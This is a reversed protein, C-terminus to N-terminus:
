VLLCLQRKGTNKDIGYMEGALPSTYPVDDDSWMTVENEFSGPVFSEEPKIVAFWWKGHEKLELVKMIGSRLELLLSVQRAYGVSIIKGDM